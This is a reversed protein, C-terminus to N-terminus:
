FDSERNYLNLYKIFEVRTYVTASPFTLKQLIKSVLFKLFKKLYLFINVNLYKNKNNM